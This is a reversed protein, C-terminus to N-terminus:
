QKFFYFKQAESPFSREHFFFYQLHFINIKLHVPVPRPYNYLSFGKFVQLNFSNNFISWFELNHGLKILSVRDSWDMMPINSMENGPNGFSNMLLLGFLYFYIWHFTHQPLSPFHSTFNCDCLLLHSSHGQLVNRDSAMDPHVELTHANWNYPCLFVLRTQSIWRNLSFDIM